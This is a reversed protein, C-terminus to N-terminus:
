NEKDDNNEEKIMEKKDEIGYNIIIYLIFYVVYVYTNKNIDVITKAKMIYKKVPPTNKFGLILVLSL